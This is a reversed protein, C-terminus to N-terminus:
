STWTIIWVSVSLASGSEDFVRDGRELAAGDVGEMGLAGTAAVGGVDDLDGAQGVDQGAAGVGGAGVGGVRKVFMEVHQHHAVVEVVGDGLVDGERFAADALFGDGGLVDQVVEAGERHHRRVALRHAAHTLDDDAGPLGGVFHFGLATGQRTIGFAVVVGADFTVDGFVGDVGRIAWPKAVSIPDM